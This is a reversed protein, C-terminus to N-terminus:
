KRTEAKDIRSGTSESDMLSTSEATTGIDAAAHSDSTSAGPTDIGAPSVPPILLYLAAAAGIKISDGIIFPIFGTSVAASWTMGTSLKLWSVGCGYVILSGAVLGTIVKFLRKDLALFGIIVVAPLYGVLYGGTPGALRAIGGSGGSFVPLGLVGLFLYLGVCALGKKPGLYTAALMVFFNQLVLPVPGIPIALYAGATILAAFLAIMVSSRLATVEPSLYGIRTENNM